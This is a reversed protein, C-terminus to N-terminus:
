HFLSCVNLSAARVPNAVPQAAVVFPAEFAELNKGSASPGSSNCLTDHIIDNCVYRTAADGLHFQLCHM